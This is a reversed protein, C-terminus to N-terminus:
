SGKSFQRLFDLLVQNFADPQEVTVAHGADAIMVRHAGSIGDALVKQNRLPVTGDRDGSVVLTPLQLEKLRRRKDFWGLARMAEKYVNQDSQQVEAILLRRLEIQEPKPFIRQAVYEAQRSLGQFNLMTYRRLLYLWGEVTDPRLSAFTNVLVLGAIRDPHDFALQLAVTGGMSIGVAYVHAIALAQLLEMCAESSRSISWRGGQFHSQGFGPMDPALPRYGADILCPIQLQWSDSHAGLGHLLLIVPNGHPNPDQFHLRSGNILTIDPM